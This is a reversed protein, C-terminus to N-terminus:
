RALRWITFLGTVWGGCGQAVLTMILIVALVGLIEKFPTRKWMPIEKYITIRESYFM